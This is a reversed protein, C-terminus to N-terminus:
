KPYRFLERRKESTFLGHNQHTKTWLWHTRTQHYYAIFRKLWARLDGAGFVIVQDLCERRITGIMREVYARQWPSRPDSLVQTMLVQDDLLSFCKAQKNRDRRPASDESRQTQENWQHRGKPCEKQRAM